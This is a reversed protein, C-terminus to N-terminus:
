QVQLFADAVEPDFQTGRCRRIENRARRAPLAGRYPRNSTMADYADCVALIRAGLPVAGNCRGDPYGRGDHREHHHRVSARLPVFREVPRLIREGLECHSKVHQYEDPTLPGPKHLVAERVGIKGIDHFLAALEIRAVDRPSLGLHRTVRVAHEAVRRSHGHTYPDRTELANALLKLLSLFADPDRGDAGDSAVPRARSADSADIAPSRSHSM